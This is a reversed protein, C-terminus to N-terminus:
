RIQLFKLRHSRAARTTAMNRNNTDDRTVTAAAYGNTVNSVDAMDDRNSKSANARNSCFDLGCRALLV